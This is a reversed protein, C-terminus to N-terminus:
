QRVTFMRALRTSLAPMIPCLRPHTGEGFRLKPLLGPSGSAGSVRACGLTRVLKPELGVAGSIENLRSAECARVLDRTRDRNEESDFTFLYSLQYLSRM